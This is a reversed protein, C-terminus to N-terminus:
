HHVPARVLIVKDIAGWTSLNTPGNLPTVGRSVGASDMLLADLPDL